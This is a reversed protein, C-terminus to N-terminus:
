RAHRGRMRDWIFLAVLTAAVQASFQCLLAVLGFLLMMPGSPMVQDM